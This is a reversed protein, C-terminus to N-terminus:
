LSSYKVKHVGKERMGNPKTIFGFEFVSKGQLYAKLMAKNFNKDWSSEFDKTKGGFTRSKNYANPHMKQVDLQTNSLIM